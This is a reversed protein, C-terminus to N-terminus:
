LNHKYIFTSLFFSYVCYQNRGWTDHDHIYKSLSKKRTKAIVDKSHENKDTNRLQRFNCSLHLCRDSM